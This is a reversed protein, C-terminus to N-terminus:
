GRCRNFVERRRFASLRHSRKLGQASRGPVASTTCIPGLISSCVGGTRNATRTVQLVGYDVYPVEVGPFLDCVIGHFLPLDHELFQGDPM